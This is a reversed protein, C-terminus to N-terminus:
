DLFGFDSWNLSFSCYFLSLIRVWYVISLILLKWARTLIDVTEAFNSRFDDAHKTSLDEIRLRCHKLDNIKICMTSTIDSEGLSRDSEIAAAAAKKKKKRDKESLGAM